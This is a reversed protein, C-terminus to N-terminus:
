AAMREEVAPHLYKKLGGEPFEFKIKQKIAANIMDTLCCGQYHELMLMFIGVFMSGHGSHEEKPFMNSVVWHAMEHVAVDRNMQSPAINVETLGRQFSGGRRNFSLRVRLKKFQSVGHFDAEIQQIFATMEAKTMRQSGSRYFPKEWAYVKSRQSDVARSRVAIVQPTGPHDDTNLVHLQYAQAAAFDDDFGWGDEWEAFFAKDIDDMGNSWKWVKPQIITLVRSRRHERVCVFFGRRTQPIMSEVISVWGSTPHQRENIIKCTPKTQWRPHGLSFDRHAM